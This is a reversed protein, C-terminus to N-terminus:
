WVCGVPIYKFRGFLIGSCYYTIFDWSGVYWRTHQGHYGNNSAVGSLPVTVVFIIRPAFHAVPTPTTDCRSRCPVAYVAASVSSKLFVTSRSLSRQRICVFCSVCVVPRNNWLVDDLNQSISYWIERIFFQGPDDNILLLLITVKPCFFFM